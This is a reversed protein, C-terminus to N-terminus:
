IRMFEGYTGDNNVAYIVFDGQKQGPMGPSGMPMGPLAIGKIDPKEVMLKDIAELPMHGEVFYGDIVATHCSELESPVGYKKKIDSIDTQESIQVNLNGKTKLYNANVDCCGCTISKYFQVPQQYGELAVYSNTSPKFLFIALALIVILGTIIIWSNSKKPKKNEETECCNEEM